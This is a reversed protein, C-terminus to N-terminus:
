EKESLKQQILENYVVNFEEETDCFKFADWLEYTHFQHANLVDLMGLKDLQVLVHPVNLSISLM